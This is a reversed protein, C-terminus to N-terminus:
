DMVMPELRAVVEKLEDLRVLVDGGRYVKGNWLVDLAIKVREWLNAPYSSIYVSCEAPEEEGNWVMQYPQLVVVHNSCGWSCKLVYTHERLDDEFKGM